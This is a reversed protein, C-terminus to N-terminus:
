KNPDLETTFSMYILRGVRPGGYIQFARNNLLNSGGIKFTTKIKPFYKNVQADLMDYSPVFGTFQPSGEFVFGQVWKYNVSFGVNEIGAVTMDRGSFGLNFKHEPTNFAPIIPDDTQTNLVNWSYNGNITFGNNFYYNLGVAVGQTTVRDQANSALRYTQVSTPLGIGPSFGTEIGIQYGIFDRYFSYYYGADVYLRKFLMARYGVEFTQVREPRIPDVNFYDLAETNVDASGFADLFSEVTVLSDFGNINGLLIAPGVDFNLYQDSLTPNRIASSFSFRFVDTDNLKVVGSAAPSVLWNFNQNKDVRVTANLKLRDSFVKKEIGGYIGFERVTIRVDTTDYVIEGGDLTDIATIIPRDDFISGESIPTYLRGNGGVTIKAWTPNFVYEGHVHWLSSRDVIRTGGRDLVSRSTIDNLVSDYAASGPTPINQEVVSRVQDHWVQLSDSYEDLISEAAEEDYVLTVQGTVPDVVVNGNEDTLLELKPFGEIAEIKPVIQEKWTRRYRVTFDTDTLFANQLILATRVADYSNGANEQTRYARIFFKDKQRIEVRNQLFTIDRLSFRNEGQLVTTGYAFSSSFIGEVKPSMMWHLAGALKLNETDYDVLDVENFGSRHIIGLGPFDVRSKFDTYTRPGPNINEDGYRNVADYGGPNMEGVRLSDEQDIEALNDAEWDNVSLYYANIKFAFLDRGDKNQFAKAYRIGIEGLGREAGRGQISLGQHIFPSKTKMSIVGNFANPGYYASAAGVILDVQEVDLESAGLFNGLSFNLGPAQNDVGDIIQLSRVPASSNFGRTNIVKFGISAATLDVGKLAGLGDYFNASPTEKIANISMSEVSLPEQRQREALASAVIEVEDLDVSGQPLRLVVGQDPGDVTVDLTDYGYYTVQLSYPAGGKLNLSFSGDTKTLAGSNTGVLSIRAGVLPNGNGDDVVKGSLTGQAITASSLFLGLFLVFIHALSARICLCKRGTSLYYYNM